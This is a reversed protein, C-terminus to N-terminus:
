KLTGVAPLRMVEHPSSTSSVPMDRISISTCGNKCIYIYIYIYFLISNFSPIDSGLGLRKSEVHM